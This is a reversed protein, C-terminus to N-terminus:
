FFRLIVKAEPCESDEEFLCNWYKILDTVHITIHPKGFSWVEHEDNYSGWYSSDYQSGYDGTRILNAFDIYRGANGDIKVTDNKWDVEIPSAFYGNDKQREQIWHYVYSENRKALFRDIGRRYRRPHISTYATWSPEINEVDNKFGIAVPIWKDGIKLKELLIRVMHKIPKVFFYKSQYTQFSWESLFSHLLLSSYKPRRGGYVAIIGHPEVISYQEIIRFTTMVDPLKQVAEDRNVYMSAIFVPVMHEMELADIFQLVASRMRHSGPVFHKFYVIPDQKVFFDKKSIEFTLSFEGLTVNKKYVVEAM